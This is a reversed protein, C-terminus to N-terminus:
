KEKRIRGQVVSRIRGQKKIYDIFVDRDLYNPKVPVVTIKSEDLGFIDHLHDGVYNNTAVSYVHDPDISRGQVTASLLKRGKVVYRLGSVQCFEGKGAAQWELMSRLQKGSVEFKVFYNGFPAIEWVDRATIKGAPLNKRIGGSNQFAVDAGTFDRTVDALWNGINSESKYHRVWDTELVGIVQNLEEGAIDELSDVIAQMLSDPKVGERTELLFGSSSALRDNDLDVKLDLVGLYRGRSGAQVIVTNNVKVPAQLATHSHGGVIVDIGEVKRALAKDGNYGLHSLVIIIDCGNERLVRVFKRVVKEVPLVELGRLNDRLSLSFLNKPALGIVGIRVPGRRIITFPKVFYRGRKKDWLDASVVWFNVKAFLKELNERGYDFEHNGFTF